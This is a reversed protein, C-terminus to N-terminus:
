SLHLLRSPQVATGCLELLDLLRIDHLLEPLRYHPAQVLSPHRPSAMPHILRQSCGRCRPRNKQQEEQSIAIGDSLDWAAGGVQLVEKSASGIVTFRSVSSFSPRNRSRLSQVPRM